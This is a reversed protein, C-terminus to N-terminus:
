GDKAEVHEGDTLPTLRGHAMVFAHGIEFKIRTWTDAPEGDDTWNGEGVRSALWNFRNNGCDCQQGFVAWGFHLLHEALWIRM